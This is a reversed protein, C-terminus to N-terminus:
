SAGRAAAAERATLVAERWRRAALEDSYREAIWAHARLGMRVAEAPDAVLARLAAEWESEAGALFGTEGHRVVEGTTGVPSAVAAMGHGGYQISRFVCKGRTWPDDTLPALGVHARLMEERAAEPTWQVFEAPVPADEWARSSLIRLRFPTERHVRALAERVLALYQLNDPLGMWLVVPEGPREAPPAAVPEVTTPIVEVRPAHPRAFGALISNGAVALDVSRLTEIMPRRRSSATPRGRALIRAARKAATRLAPAGVAPPTAYLADDFDFLIADYRERLRRVDAARALVRQLVLVAGPGGAGAIADIEHPEPFSGAPLALVPWPGLRELPGLRYRTSVFDWGGTSAVVVRETM